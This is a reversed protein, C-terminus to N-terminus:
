GLYVALLGIVMDAKLMNSMFGIRAPDPDKFAQHLVYILVPYVGICIVIFYKYSYINFIYPIVTLIILLIFGIMILVFSKTKGYKIPFTIVNNKSDGEMDQVDKLIERGLHFFFAFAAPFLTGQYNGVAGGGYIFAMATTLSVALNGWLITRKLRASYFILLISFVFAILFMELNIAAACISAFLFVLICFLLAQKPSISGAALPRHPKNIKDIEIDYYDNIINAGMTILSASIAALLVNSLPDLGGALKAAVLITLFAILVNSPRTLLYLEKLKDFNM